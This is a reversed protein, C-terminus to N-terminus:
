ADMDIVVGESAPHSQCTLVYGAAIEEDSLAENSDMKVKGSICKGRCATCLGSQCSYPMDIGADLAADLITKNSPVELHHDAGSLKILVAGSGTAKEDTPVPAFFSEKFVESIGAKELEGEIVEMLAQPGCLYAQKRLDNPIDALLSRLTESTLRGMQDAAPDQSIFYHIKLRDGHKQAWFDLQKKFIIDAQSRASYFLHVFSNREFSVVTKLMSMLPTIGSGGAFLLYRQSRKSNPVLTFNGMPEMVEMKIGEKVHDNLWNSVIGSPVRKVTVALTDDLNPASSLSYSRRYKKGNEEVTLTLFQGAQYGIKKLLPQKFHISITDATERVVEKVKLTHYKIAM